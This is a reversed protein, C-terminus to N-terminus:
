YLPCPPALQLCLKYYVNLEIATELTVMMVVAEPFGQIENEQNRMKRNSLDGPCPLHAM